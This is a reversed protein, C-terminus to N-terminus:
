SANSTSHSAENVVVRTSIRAMDSKIKLYVDGELLHDELGLCQHHITSNDVPDGGYNEKVFDAEDVGDDYSVPVRRMLEGARQFLRRVEVAALDGDGRVQKALEQLAARFARIPLSGYAVSRASPAEDMTVRAVAFKSATARPAQTQVVGFMGQEYPLASPPSNAALRCCNPFFISKKRAMAPCQDVSFKHILDPYLFIKEGRSDLFFDGKCDKGGHSSVFWFLLEHRDSEMMHQVKRVIIAFDAKTLNGKLNKPYVDCEVHRKFTARLIEADKEAGKRISDEQGDHFDVFCTTVVLARLPKAKRLVPQVIEDVPGRIDEQQLRQRIRINVQRPNLARDGCLNRNRAKLDPDAGARELTDEVDANNQLAAIHLVSWNSDPMASNVDAKHHILWELFEKRNNQAAAHLPTWGRQNKSNILRDREAETKLTDYMMQAMDIRGLKATYQM